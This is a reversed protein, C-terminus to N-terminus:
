EIEDALYSYIEGFSPHVHMMKKLDDIKAKYYLLPVGEHILDAANHGIIGVGLIRRSKKEIVFKIFGDTEDYCEAKGLEAFGIKRVEINLKRKKAEDEGIGIWAIEPNCFVAFPVRDYELKEKKKGFMNGVAIRGGEVAANVVMLRGAADGAAYINKVNTGLYDDVNIRNNMVKVGARSLELGDINPKRGVAVLIEDVEVHIESEGQEFVIKKKGGAKSIERVGAKTYVKIGKGAFVRELEKGIDSDAIKVLREGREIIITKVGLAHFYYALEVGIYGGGIVAISGPLKKLELADDSTIYGTEKLGNIEPIVVESGTAILFNVGKVLKDGVRVSNRDVFGAEGPIFDIERSKVKKDFSEKRYDAFGKIIGNKRSIMHPMDIAVRGEAYVGFKHAKKFLEMLRASYLLTKSPMCGKLICLGGFPGKDIVCVKKKLKVASMAAHYGASGAGIIVLDYMANIVVM